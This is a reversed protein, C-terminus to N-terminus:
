RRMVIKIGIWPQAWRPARPRTRTGRPSPSRHRPRLTSDLPTYRGEQDVM